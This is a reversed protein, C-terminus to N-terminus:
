RVSSRAVNLRESLERESPLRDSTKLQDFGIMNRLQKAIEIYVKTDTQVAKM